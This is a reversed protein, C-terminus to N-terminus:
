QQGDVTPTLTPTGTATPTLTITPTPTQELGVESTPTPTASPTPTITPTPTAEEVTGTATPTASPTGTPTVSATGTPTVTATPAVTPTVPLTSTATPTITPTAVLTPTATQTVPLTPTITPTATPPLAPLYIEQGEYVDYQALCNVQVIRLITTEHLQALEYLTDGQQVTYLVWGAPPNPVCLTPTITPQVPAPPLYLRQGRYITTTRLCNAQVIAAVSTGYRWALRTLTDGSQVVYVQWSPPQVCPPTATASPTWTPTPTATEIATETATWTPQPTEGPEPTSTPTPSPTITWTPTWTPPPSPTFTPFFTPLLTPTATVQASRGLDKEQLVLMGSGLITCLLVGVISVGVALQYGLGPGGRRASAM